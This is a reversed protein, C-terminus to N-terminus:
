WMTMGFGFFRTGDVPRHAFKFVTAVLSLQSSATLIMYSQREFAFLKVHLPDLPKMCRQENAPPQKIGKIGQIKFESVGNEVKM